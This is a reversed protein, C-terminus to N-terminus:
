AAPVREKRAAEVIERLTKKVDDSLPEPQHTKIIRRAEERAVQTLDKGGKAQWAGRTQRDILTPRSQERMHQLTHNERLFNKIKHAEKIIDVAMTEDTVDIGQIVRKIMRVIDNDIMLQEHSWTLASELIGMGYIMNLGALAPLLTTMTGEHAAQADPLKSDKGYMGLGFSPLKYYQALKAAAASILGVEPAGLPANVVKLDFIGAFSGYIVPTGKRTLQGLVISGLEEANNVIITGALTIPGTTGALAEPGIGYPIGFRAAEIIVECVETSLQMPSVPCVDVSCLPRRRLEDTSGAIATGMEFLRKASQTSLIEIHFFHKSTNAFCTEAAVLDEIQSPIDMPAVAPGSFVDVGDAADCLITSEAMDKSTPKRVKGTELDIINPAIAFNTFTVRTGGLVVDNKPNRGALLVKSPASRIAEEVLYPPIKVINTKKDVKCGHSHFIEQAEDNLVMLGGDQLVDLTAEHLETLEDETFLNLGCGSLQVYSARTGRIM